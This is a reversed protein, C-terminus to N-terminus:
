NKEVVSLIKWGVWSIDDIEITYGMPRTKDRYSKKKNGISWNSEWCSMKQYRRALAKRFAGTENLASAKVSVMCWKAEKQSTYLRQASSKSHFNKHMIHLKRTKMNGIEIDDNSWRVIDAQIFLAYRNIAHIKHCSMSKTTGMSSAKWSQRLVSYPIVITSLHQQRGQRRITIEM